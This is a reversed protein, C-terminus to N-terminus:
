KWIKRGRRTPDERKEVPKIKRDGAQIKGEKRVRLHGSGDRVLHDKAMVKEQNSLTVSSAYWLPM